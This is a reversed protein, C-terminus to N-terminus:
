ADSIISIQKGERSLGIIYECSKAENFKHYSKLPANVGLHKLLISSHRTDECFIVDSNKLVNVARLTIEELNGIPTGVFYIM